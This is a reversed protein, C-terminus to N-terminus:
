VGGEVEIHCVADRWRLTKLAHSFNLLLHLEVVHNYIINRHIHCFSVKFGQIMLDLSLETGCQKLDHRATRLDDGTGLGSNWPWAARSGFFFFFFFDILKMWLSVQVGLNWWWCLPSGGWARCFFLSRLALLFCPLCIWSFSVINDVVAPFTLLVISYYVFKVSLPSVRFYPLNWSTAIAFM